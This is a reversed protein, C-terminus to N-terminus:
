VALSYFLMAVSRAGHAAAMDPAADARVPTVAERPADWRTSLSALHAAHRAAQHATWRDRLQRYWRQAETSRGIPLGSVTPYGHVPM